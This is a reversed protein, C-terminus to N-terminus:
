KIQSNLKEQEKYWKIYRDLGQRAAESKNIEPHTNFFRYQDDRLYILIKHRYVPRKSIASFTVM